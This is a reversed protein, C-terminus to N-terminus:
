VNRGTTKGISSDSGSRSNCDTVALISTMFLARAASSTAIAALQSPEAGGGSCAANQPPMGNRVRGAGSNLTIQVLTGPDGTGSYETPRRSSSDYGCTGVPHSNPTPM